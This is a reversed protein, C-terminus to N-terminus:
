IRCSFQAGHCVRCKQFQRTAHVATEEVADLTEMSLPRDDDFNDLADLIYVQRKGGMVYEVLSQLEAFAGTSM